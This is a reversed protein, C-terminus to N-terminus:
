NRDRTHADPQAITVGLVEAIWGIFGGEGFRLLWEDVLCGGLDINRARRTHGVTIIEPLELCDATLLHYAVFQDSLTRRGRSKPFLAERLAASVHDYGPLHTAGTILAASSEAPSAAIISALESGPLAAFFPERTKAATRWTDSNLRVTYAFGTIAGADNLAVAFTSRAAPFDAHLQRAREDPPLGFRTVGIHCLETLRPLDDATVSRIHVDPHEDPAYFHAQASYGAGAALHLLEQISPAADHASRAQRALYAFARRRMDQCAQPARWLLEAAVSERVLDHLRAGQPVARVMSLSCLAGFSGSVDRGLMTNLLEQNFTRVLSAAEILRRMGPEAVERTMQGILSRAVPGSLQFGRNEASQAHQAAVILFLPNGCAFALIRAIAGPDDAGHLRVLKRSEETSLRPLGIEDVLGQWHGSRALVPTPRRGSLMVLVPSTISPLVVNWLDHEMDRMEEVTDLVLLLPSGSGPGCVEACRTAVTESLTAADHHFDRSDLLVSPWGRTDCLRALAYAFATKGIGPPGHLQVVRPLQETAALMEVMRSLEDSRGQYFRAEETAARQGLTVLPPLDAATLEARADQPLGSFGPDAKASRAKEASRSEDPEVACAPSDPRAVLPDARLMAEYLAGLRPSPDIGLEAALEHRLQHFVSLAEGQRGCRYLAVMQYARFQERLPYGAALEALEAVLARHQGAALDAEIRQELATMRAEEMGAIRAALAPLDDAVDAAVPGRWLDLAQRLLRGATMPERSVLGGAAASLDRFCEWDLNGSRAYFRYGSAQTEITLDDGAAATLSQRLSWLYTHLNQRASSPRDDGWMMDILRDPSIVEGAHVALGALLRRPRVGGLTVEAGTADRLQLPGLMRLPPGHDLERAVPEYHPSEPQTSSKM